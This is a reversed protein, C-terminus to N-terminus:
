ATALLRTMALEVAQDEAADDNASSRWAVVGDPRVIVAGARDLGYAAEFANGPSGLDAGDGVESTFV